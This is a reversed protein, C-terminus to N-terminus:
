ESQEKTQSWQNAFYRMYAVFAIILVLAAFGFVDLLTLTVAIGVLFFVILFRILAQVRKEAALGSDGIMPFPTWMVWLMHFGRLAFIFLVGCSALLAFKPM